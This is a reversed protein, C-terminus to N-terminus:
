AGHANVLVRALRPHLPLKRLTEDADLRELLALAADIRYEPPREFWECTRPDGGWGIIDLLTSALDVRHIEPERHARLIDRDSWLRIARGPATRGARGARQDASDQSIREVVLHDVATEPDFRLVKHVGTDIVTTVGE